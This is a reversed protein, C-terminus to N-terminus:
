LQWHRGVYSAAHQTYIPDPAISEARGAGGLARLTALVCDALAHPEYGGELVVGVPADFPEALDRVHCTMQAFDETQLRCGGIPDARHADFGASILVLEPAFRTAVPLM